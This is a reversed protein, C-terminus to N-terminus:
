PLLWALPTVVSWPLVCGVPAGAPCPPVGAPAVRAWPATADCGAEGTVVRLGLGELVAIGAGLRAEEIAGSPAVVGVVDGRRIRVPKGIPSPRLTADM